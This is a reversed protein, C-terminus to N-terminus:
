AGGGGAALPLRIEIRFGGGEADGARVDGRHARALERVIYLGLGAGPQTRVNEDGGRVFPEFIRAKDLGQLGKGHDRVSLEAWRGHPPAPGGGGAGRAGPGAGGCAAPV